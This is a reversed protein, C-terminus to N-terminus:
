LKDKVLNFFILTLKIVSCKLLYSNMEYQIKGLVQFSGNDDKLDVDNM